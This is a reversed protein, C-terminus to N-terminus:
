EPSIPFNLAGLIERQKKSIEGLVSTGDESYFRRLRKLNSIIEPFTMKKHLKSKKLRYMISSHIILAVVHIFLRGELANQSHVRFRNGDMENKLVDFFKEVGDRRFYDSVMEKKEIDHESSLLIIKGFKMAHKEIADNDRLLKIDGKAIDTKFLSATGKAIKDIAKLAEDADTFVSGNFGEEALELKRTLNSLEDIERKRDYFVHADLKGEALELAKVTHGLTREGFSFLNSASHLEPISEALIRKAESTSFPLPIVFRFGNKIMGKLNSASYFGRDTLIRAHGLKLDKKLYSLLNKLTSVDGISGQYIRYGLPLEEDDGYIMGMNIQPLAEGDRNYGYEQLGEHSAYSSISTIDFVINRKKGHRGAWKRWFVERAYEDDGLRNMFLSTQQSSMAFQDMGDTTATWDPFLYMPANETACFAALSLVKGADEKGFAEELTKVLGMEAAARALVHVAGADMSMRVGWRRKRPTSVEGTVADKVGIYKRTQRSQKRKRDWHNTAEYVYIKGGIKQEVRYSM